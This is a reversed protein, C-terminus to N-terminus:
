HYHSRQQTRQKDGGDASINGLDAKTYVRDTESDGPIADRHLEAAQEAADIRLVSQVNLGDSSCQSVWVSKVDKLNNHFDLRVLNNTLSASADNIHVRSIHLNEVSPSSSPSQYDNMFVGAFQSGVGDPTPKTIHVGDITCAKGGRSLYIAAVHAAAPGYINYFSYDRLVIGSYVQNITIVGLLTRYLYIDEFTNNSINTHDQYIDIAARVGNEADKEGTGRFINNTVVNMRAKTNNASGLFYIGIGKLRLMANSTASNGAL